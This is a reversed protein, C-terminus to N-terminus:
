YYYLNTDLRVVLRITQHSFRERISRGEYCLPDEVVFVTYTSLLRILLSYYRGLFM